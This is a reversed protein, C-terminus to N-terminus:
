SVGCFKTFTIMCPGKVTIANCFSRLTEIKSQTILGLDTIPPHKLVSLRSKIKNWYISAIKAPM